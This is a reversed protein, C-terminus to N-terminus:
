RRIALSGPAIPGKTGRSTQWLPLSHNVNRTRIMTKKMSHVKGHRHDRWEVGDVTRQEQQVGVHDGTALKASVRWLKSEQRALDCRVNRRILSECSRIVQFQRNKSNDPEFPTLRSDSNGSCDRSSENTPERPSLSAAPFSRSLDSPDGHFISWVAQYLWRLLSRRSLPKLVSPILLTDLGLM